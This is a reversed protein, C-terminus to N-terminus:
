KFLTMYEKRNKGKYYYTKVQGTVDNLLYLRNGKKLLKFPRIVIQSASLQIDLPVKENREKYFSFIAEYNNYEYKLSITDKSFLYHGSATDWSIHGKYSYTFTSDSKLFLSRGVFYGSSAYM